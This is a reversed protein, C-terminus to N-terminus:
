DARLENLLASEMLATECVTKHRIPLDHLEKIQRPIPVGSLEQLKEACRFADMGEVAERGVLSRVVSESFKYPSATALIICPAHDNTETRYQRLVYSAVATHPDMVYHCRDYVLKIEEATMNDDAYGAWFTKKLEALRQSGISFSGCTTLLEMWTRVIGADRNACEYLLRELNSSILIDMSPSLTQFFTRHTYYTGDTFFDTLVNNRNSACILRSIPLGMRKAYYGALIDGFNGTPVVFNVSQGMRVTGSQVLKTYATFYYVIQPVLRGFNISNASSPLKGLGDMKKRFEESNFLQKVGTQAEDFNGKVGIVHTNSGGTTVMQLEQIKSVGGHPYFVSCSTGPVDKFGELAAKGTDGSTAVLISIERKEDNKEAALRILHPLLKLAIDKFALTPGHFLEMVHVDSTLTRVPTIEPSDFSESSYAANVADEIEEISYDELFDRLIRAAQEQYSAGCLAAMRESTLRPFMSPVYLGGDKALGWLISQSTTVCAGGRTSFFSM